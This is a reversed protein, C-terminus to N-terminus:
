LATILKQQILFTRMLDWVLDLDNAMQHDTPVAALQTTPHRRVYEESLAPSVVTDRVGHIILTPCRSADPYGPLGLVEEFFAYHLPVAHGVAYHEVDWTGRSQWESRREPTVSNGWLSAPDLAPALLVLADARGGRAVHSAAVYGGMSSGILVLPLDSPSQAVEEAVREQIRAMSLHTFDPVNMDPVRVPGHRELQAWLHRAKSSQPSSAFGHLYVSAFM